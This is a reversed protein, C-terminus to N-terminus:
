HLVAEHTNKFVSYMNWTPVSLYMNARSKICLHYTYPVGKNKRKFICM